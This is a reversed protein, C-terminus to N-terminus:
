TVHFINFVHELFFFSWLKAAVHVEVQKRKKGKSPLRGLIRGVKITRAVSLAVQLRRVGGSGVLLQDISRWVLSFSWPIAIQLFFSPPSLPQLQRRNPNVVTTTPPQGLPVSSPPPPPPPSTESQPLNPSLTEVTM